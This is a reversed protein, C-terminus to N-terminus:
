KQLVVDDGDVPLREDAQGEGAHEVEAALTPRAVVRTIRNSKHRSHEQSM